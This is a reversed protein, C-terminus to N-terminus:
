SSIMLMGLKSAEKQLYKLKKEKLDANYIHMPIPNFETQTKVMKYFITAMKRATAKTAVLPGAQSKKRRYFSGLWHDSRQLAFAAM